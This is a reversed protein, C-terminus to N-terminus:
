SKNVMGPVCGAQAIMDVKDVEVVKKEIYYLGKEKTRSTGKKICCSITKGRHRMPMNFLVALASKVRRNRNTIEKLGAM